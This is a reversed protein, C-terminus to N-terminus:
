LHASPALPESTLPMHEGGSGALGGFASFGRETLLPRASRVRVISGACFGFLKMNDDNTKKAREALAAQPDEAEVASNALYEAHRRNFVPLDAPDFGYYALQGVSDKSFSALGDGLQTPMRPWWAPLASGCAGCARDTNRTDRRLRKAGIM